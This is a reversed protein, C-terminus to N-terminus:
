DSPARYDIMVQGRPHGWVGIYTPLWGARRGLEEMFAIEYGFPKHDGSISPNVHGPGFSGPLDFTALLSGGPRIFGRLNNLCLFIDKEDLHSFLSQALAFDARKSFKSFEFSDSVVFEPSKAEIVEPPIERKLGAQILWSNRDIGLYNGLDLYPIFFRGGRLSGCAVDVLTDGSKLGRAIMFDFQLRGIHEWRGGVYGRHGSFRRRLGSGLRRVRSPLRRLRRFQM